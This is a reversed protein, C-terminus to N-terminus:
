SQKTYEAVIPCEPDPAYFDNSVHLSVAHCGGKCIDLYDCSSCPKPAKQPWNRFDNLHKSTEWFNNLDDIYEDNQAFSCAAVRGDHTIGLLINGGDCGYVAFREMQEKNPKHCCMMPVFSCDIKLEMDYKKSLNLIKPYIERNQEPSLKHGNYNQVGRGFPKFRLFEIDKLKKQGAFKVIKDLSNFNVRSVVCNIGINIKEKKLIEIARLAVSFHDHGRMKKYMPGLGDLSVNIQGFVHCRKALEPTIYYGNTTLNPIIGQERAYESIELFDDRAFAEGGGLAIHFVGMKSLQRLYKKFTETNIIEKGRKTSEKYCYNCELPCYNNVAFHVETPASLFTNEPKDWLPSHDYGLNKMYDRDVWALFPPHESSVIGGFQEYRFRSIGKKSLMSKNFYRNLFSKLKM